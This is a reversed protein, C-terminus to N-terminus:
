KISSEITEIEVKTLGYLEYVIENIRNEAATIRNQIKDKESPLKVKHIDKNLQLLIDVLRIIEDHITKQSKGDLDLVLVPFRDLDVKKLQPTSDRNTVLRHWYVFQFIKSNILATFYKLSLKTKNGFLFYLSQEPFIKSTDYTAYIPYGTKRLLVKEKVGLKKIDTTRGTINKRIFEFYFIEGLFYKQVSRGRVIKIQRNNKQQETIEKSKGGLGSTTEIIKGLPEFNKSIFLKDLVKSILNSTEYTFKYEKDKLYEESTKIQLEKGFEGVRIEYSKKPQISNLIRFILTDTVIGPFEAKYILEEIEFQDLIKKRLIVFQANYGLRDPVILSFSGGKKILELGRHVFYEYLNPMYTNGQFKSLLYQQADSSLIDNGFKGSLSVWPPNGIVADFGGQKFVQPFAAKWDFPNIKKKLEERNEKDLGLDDDFFDYGILSNGCQINGDLNPLVRKHILKLQQNISAETEGEMAKLLLSLKTVEVAQPDIDVGFINNILIKRKEETTLRGEPSLPNDKGSSGESIKKEHYNRKRYYDAHYNLLFQFAGLLFSGSGCAPDVIKIESIQEPTKGQILKGVTNKVIYDVIYEPTYYVGGAKRVEPKEEIKVIHGPTIRIVKGLFQEYANGLVEVPLISFDYENNPPYLESIINKIVKDDIKLKESIKDKRFDFLGSNYKEDAQQFLEFLNKYLNGKEIAKKLSEWPEIRKYECFILFIIRDLTQQVAYQVEEQTLRHNNKAISAALYKRWENLSILFDSDVTSTGRKATDSKTFKDFRGKLIGEKSFTNWLFDFDRVYDKYTLYRIRGVPAKDNPFPKKTCDYIAFEEFDTIISIPLKTHWGYQRLQFSASADDKIPVSPKKAEVFFKRQGYITFCYDPAKTKGEVKIKDEPIVERYSEDLGQENFIDWGLARFFKNIYDGRTKAEDYSGRKYNEYNEEFRQALEAIRNLATEKTIQEM